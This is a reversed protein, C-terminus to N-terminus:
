GGDLAVGARSFRHEAVADLFIRAAAATEFPKRLLQSGSVERLFEAEDGSATVCVVAADFREALAAIRSAAPGGDRARAEAIILIPGPLGDLTSPSPNADHLPTFGIEAAIQGLRMAALQDPDTILATGGVPVLMQQLAAGAAQAEEVVREVTLDMIAAAEEVAFRELRLLLFAARSGATLAALAQRMPEGVGRMPTLRMAVRHSARFADILTIEQREEVMRELADLMAEDALIPNGLCARLYRRLRHALTM